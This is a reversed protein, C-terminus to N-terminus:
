TRWLRPFKLIPRIARHAKHGPLPTNVLAMKDTVSVWGRILLPGSKSNGESGEGRAFVEASASGSSAPLAVKLLPLPYIILLPFVDSELLIKKKIYLM